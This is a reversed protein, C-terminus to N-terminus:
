LPISGQDATRELWEYGCDRCVRHHHGEDLARCLKGDLRGREGVYLALDDQGSRHFYIFAHSISSCKACARARDFSLVESWAIM